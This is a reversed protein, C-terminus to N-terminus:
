GFSLSLSLSILFPPPRCRTKGSSSDSKIVDRNLDVIDCVQLSIRHGKESVGGGPKVESNKYGCTDCSNSMVIVEGFFPIHTVFMRTEADADCASCSGPFTMVEEPATYKGVIKAVENEDGRAIAAGPAVIGRSNPGHYPDDPSIEPPLGGNSAAKKGEDGGEGGEEEVKLGMAVCQDRTREYYDIRLCTDKSPDQDYSEVYSNGSPDDM